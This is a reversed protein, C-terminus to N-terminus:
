LEVECPLLVHVRLSVFIIASHSVHSSLIAALVMWSGDSGPPAGSCQGGSEIM